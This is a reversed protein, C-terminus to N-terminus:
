RTKRARGLGDPDLLGLGASARELRSSEGLKGMKSEGGAQEGISLGDFDRRRGEETPGAGGWM